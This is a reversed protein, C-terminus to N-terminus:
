RAPVNELYQYKLEIKQLALHQFCFGGNDIITKVQERM